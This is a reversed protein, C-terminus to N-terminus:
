GSAAPFLDLQRKREREEADDHGWRINRNDPVLVGHVGYFLTPEDPKGGDKHRPRTVWLALWGILSVGLLLAPAIVLWYTDLTM